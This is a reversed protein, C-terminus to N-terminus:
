RDDGGALRERRAGYFYSASLALLSGPVPWLAESWGPPNDVPIGPAPLLYGSATAGLLAALFAGIIGGGFRDPVLVAFHWIALGVIVWILISV